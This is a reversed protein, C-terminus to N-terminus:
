KKAFFTDEVVQVALIGHTAGVAEEVAHVAFAIRIAETILRPPAGGGGGERPPPARPNEQARATYLIYVGEVVFFAPGARTAAVPAVVVVVAVLCSIRPRQGKRPSHSCGGHKKPSRM